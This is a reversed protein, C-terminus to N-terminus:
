YSVVMAKNDIEKNGMEGIEKMIKYNYIYIDRYVRKNTKCIPTEVYLDWGFNYDM